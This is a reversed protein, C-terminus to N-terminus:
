WYLTPSNDGCGICTHGSPVGENTLSMSPHDPNLTMTANELRCANEPIPDWTFVKPPGADAPVRPLFGTRSTAEGDTVKKLIANVDPAEAM